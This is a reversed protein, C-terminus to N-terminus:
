VAGLAIAQFNHELTTLDAARIDEAPRAVTATSTGGSPM